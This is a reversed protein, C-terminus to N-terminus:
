QAPGVQEIQFFAGDLPRSLQPNREGEGHRHNRLVEVPEPVRDGEAEEVVVDPADGELRPEPTPAIRGPAPLDTEVGGVEDEAQHTLRAPPEAMLIKRGQGAAIRVARRDAIEQ